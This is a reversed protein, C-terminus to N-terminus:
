GTSQPARPQIPHDDSYCAGYTLARDSVRYCREAIQVGVEVDAKDRRDVPVHQTSESGATCPWRNSTRTSTRIM